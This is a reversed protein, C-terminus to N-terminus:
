LLNMVNLMTRGYANINENFSELIYCDKISPTQYFESLMIVNLGNKQPNWCTNNNKLWQDIVNLM